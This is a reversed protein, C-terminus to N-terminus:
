INCSLRLLFIYICLLITKLSPKKIHKDNSLIYLYIIIKKKEPFALYLRHPKPRSMMEYARNKKSGTSIMLDATLAYKNKRKVYFLKTNIIKM